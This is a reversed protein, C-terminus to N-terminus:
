DDDGDCPDDPEANDDEVVQERISELQDDTLLHTIDHGNFHVHIEYEAGEAPEGACSYTPGSAPRGRSIVEYTIDCDELVVEITLHSMTQEM